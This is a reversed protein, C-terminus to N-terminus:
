IAEEREKLVDSLVGQHAELGTCVYLQVSVQIPENGDQHQSYVERTEADM